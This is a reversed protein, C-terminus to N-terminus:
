SGRYSSIMLTGNEMAKEDTIAIAEGSQPDLQFVIVNAENLTILWRSSTDVFLDRPSKGGCYFIEKQKLFGDIVEFCTIVDIGKTATFLFKGNPSMCISTSSCPEKWGNPLVSIIQQCRYLHHTGITYVFVENSLESLVYLHTSAANIIAKIPGSGKPLPINKVNAFTEGDYVKIEDTGKCIVYLFQEHFFVQQCKAHESMKLRQELTLRHDVKRYVVICDEEANATCVFAQNQTVSCAPVSESMKTDLRYPIPQHIDLWTIGAQGNEECVIALENRYFDLALAQNCDYFRWPGEIVGKVTHFIMRYLGKDNSTGIYINIKSM